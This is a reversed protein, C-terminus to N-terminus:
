TEMHPHLGLPKLPPSAPRDRRCRRGPRHLRARSDGRDDRQLHDRQAGGTLDRQYFYLHNLGPHVLTTISQTHTTAFAFNFGQYMYGLGVGNVYVGDPNPGGGGLGTWWDGLVEDAGGEFTITAGTITTTNVWFPIAYLASGSAGLGTGHAGFNIWRALPDTLPSTAGGMWAHAPLVVVAAPGAAAAAFDAPTFATPSVPGSPNGWPSFRVVDDLAFASGPAGGSQGSRFSIIEAGLASGTHCGLAVAFSGMAGIRRRMNRTQRM